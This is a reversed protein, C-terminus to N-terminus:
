DEHTHPTGLARVWVLIVQAKEGVPSCTGPTLGPDGQARPTKPVGWQSTHLLGLPVFLSEMTTPIYLDELDCKTSSPLITSYHSFCIRSHSHPFLWLFSSVIALVLWPPPFTSVFLPIHSPVLALNLIIIPFLHWTQSSSSGLPVPTSILYPKPFAFPWLLMSFITSLRLIFM